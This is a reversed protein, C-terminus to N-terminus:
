RRRDTLKNMLYGEKSLFKYLYPDDIALLGKIRKMGEPVSDIGQSVM